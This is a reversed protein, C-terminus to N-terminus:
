TKEVCQANTPAPRKKNKIKSGPRSLTVNRRRSKNPAAGRVGRARRIGEPAPNPNPNPEPAPAGPGRGALSTLSPGACPHSASLSKTSVRNRSNNNWPGTPHKPMVTCERFSFSPNQPRLHPSALRPSAICSLLPISLSEPILTDTALDSGIRRGGTSAPAAYYNGFSYLEPARRTTMPKTGPSFLLIGPSFLLVECDLIMYQVTVTANTPRYKGGEGQGSAGGQRFAGRM